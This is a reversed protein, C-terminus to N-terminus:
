ANNYDRHPGRAIAVIHDYWAREIIERKGFFIVSILEPHDRVLQPAGAGTGPTGILKYQEAM